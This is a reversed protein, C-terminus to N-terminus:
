FELKVTVTAGRSQHEGVGVFLTAADGHLLSPGDPRGLTTGGDGAGGAMWWGAEGSPERSRNGGDSSSSGSTNRGHHQQEHTARYQLLAVGNVAAARPPIRCGRLQLAHKRTHPMAAHWGVAEITLKLVGGERCDGNWRATTVSSHRADEGGAVADLKAAVTEGDDEYAHGSGGGAGAGPFLLWVLPDPVAAAVSAMTKMPVVAAAKVFVPIQRQTYRQTLIIPGQHTREGGWEVWAGPPIWVTKDVSGNVPSDAAAETIPAVILDSGFKYQTNQFDYAEPREPYEYYLPRLMGVSTDYAARVATYIYPALGNRLVMADKMLPFHHQFKWIRRECGTCHANKRPDCINSQPIPELQCHSRFIPSFVAFQLWRLYMESGTANTPDEDGEYPFGKAFGKIVTGNHFGGIDHSWYGYLVNSAKPTMEVQMQLTHYSQPADGSFGVGYRHTGLGGYRSLVLGRKGNATRSRDQHYLYNSWWLTGINGGSPKGCGGWDTWWYDIGNNPAAAAGKAGMMWDFYASAFSPDSLDCKWKPGGKNKMQKAFEAYHTETPGVGNPHLNVLYKLPHGLTNNDSHLEAMWAVPDKIITENWSYQSNQGHWDMQLMELATHAPHCFTSFYCPLVPLAWQRIQAVHFLCASTARVDMVLHNLPLAHDRYGELVDSVIDQAVEPVRVSYVWYRSWWIGFASLPPMDMKGAVLAFDALADTYRRGHAFLFHDTRKGGGAGPPGLSTSRPPTTASPRVIVADLKSNAVPGSSNCKFNCSFPASNFASVAVCDCRAACMDACEEIGTAPSYPDLCNNEAWDTDKMVKWPKPAVKAPPLTCTVTSGPPRGGPSPPPAWWNWGSTTSDSAEPGTWRATETDDILAWGSRSVLGSGISDRAKAQCAAPDDYCDMSGLTGKLNESDSDGFAWVAISTANLEFSVELNASTFQTDNAEPHFDLSLRPTTIVAGGGKRAVTYNTFTTPMRGINEFILSPADVFHKDPAWEMRILSDTLVTFRANGAVVPGPADASTHGTLLVTGLILAQLQMM